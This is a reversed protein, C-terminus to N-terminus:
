YEHKINKQSNTIHDESSKNTTKYLHCPKIAEVNCFVKRWQAQQISSANYLTYLTSQNLVTKVPSKFNM